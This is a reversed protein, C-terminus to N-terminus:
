TLVVSEVRDSLFFSGFLVVFVTRLISFVELFQRFLLLFFYRPLLLLIILISLQVVHALLCCLRGIESSHKARCEPLLLYAIDECVQNLGVWSRDIRVLDEIGEMMRDLYLGMVTRLVRLMVGHSRHHAHRLLMVRLRLGIREQIENRLGGRRRHHHGSHSSGHVGIGIAEYIRHGLHSHHSTNMATGVSAPSKVIEM